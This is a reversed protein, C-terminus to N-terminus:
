ESMYRKGQQKRKAKKDVKSLSKTKSKHETMTYSDMSMIVAYEQSPPLMRVRQKLVVGRKELEEEIEHFSDCFHVQEEELYEKEEQSIDRDADDLGVIEMTIREGNDVVHIGSGEGYSFVTNHVKDGSKKAIDKTGLVQYGMEEMVENLIRTVERSEQIRLNEEQLEKAKQNLLRVDEEVTEPNLYFHEPKRGLLKCSARYQIYAEEFPERWEELTKNWKERAKKIKRFEGYYVERLILYSRYEQQKKCLQEMKLVSDKHFHFFARDNVIEEYEEEMSFLLKEFEQEETTGPLGGTIGPKEEGTQNKALYADVLSHKKQKEQVLESIFAELEARTEESGETQSRVNELIDDFNAIVIIDEARVVQEKVGVDEQQRNAFEKEREQERKKEREIINSASSLLADMERGKKYLDKCRKNVEAEIKREEELRKREREAERQLRERERREQEMKRAQNLDYTSVKPGSM